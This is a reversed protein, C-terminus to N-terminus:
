PTSGIRAEPPLAYKDVSAMRVKIHKPVVNIVMLDCALVLLDDYTKRVGDTIATNNEPSQM